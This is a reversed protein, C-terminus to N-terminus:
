LRRLRDALGRLITEKREVYKRYDPAETRHVEVLIEPLSQDLFSLLQTREEESLNLTFTASRTDTAAMHWRGHLSIHSDEQEKRAFAMGDMRM